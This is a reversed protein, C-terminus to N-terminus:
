SLDIVESWQKALQEVYDTFSGIGDITHITYEPQGKVLTINLPSYGDHAYLYVKRTDIDYFTVNGNAELAFSVFNTLDLPNVGDEQCRLKYNEDWSGIGPYSDKMLFTFENADILTEVAKNKRWNRILGGMNTALLIYEDILNRGQPVCHEMQCLWGSSTGDKHQWIYQRFVQNQNIAFEIVRAKALLTYLSPFTTQFEKSFEPKGSEMNSFVLEKRKM